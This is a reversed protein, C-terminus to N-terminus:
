RLSPLGDWRVATQPLPNRNETEESRGRHLVFFLEERFELPVGRWGLEASINEMMQAYHKRMGKGHGGISHVPFSVVIFPANIDRLLRVSCGKEQQELCPLMKLVFAVDAQATPSSVLVDRCRAHPESGMMTLFRNVLAVVREDIDWAFYVVEGPLEMWPLAFPHLGCGVDLIRQPRGTIAFLSAYLTDLHGLREKTSTHQQMIQRCVKRAAEPDAGPRLAGLMRGAHEFDWAELYAGYVQHLKRKAKQTADKQSKARVAAWAAVRVLTDECLHRYKRSRKLEEVIQSTDIAM